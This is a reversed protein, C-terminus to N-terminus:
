LAELVGAALLGQLVGHMRPKEIDQFAREIEHRAAFDRDLLWEAIRSQTEDLDLKQDGRKVQFGSGRRVLKVGLNRVRFLDMSERLPLNYSAYIEFTKQRVYDAMAQAQNPRKMIETLKAAAEQLLTEYSKKDEFHPLYQRFLVEQPLERMLLNMYDQLVFHCAGFSVHLCDESSATAAHVFGHPIYLLDGPKATVELLVKGMREKVQDPTLSESDFGPIAAVSPIRNEYVRWTKEGSIQLAFVNQTDFHENYGQIGKHSAFISTNVPASVNAGVALSTARVGPSLTDAFALALTAGQKLAQQVSRPDPRQCPRGERDVSAYCFKQPPILKGNLALDMSAESWLNAVQLMENLQEWSFVAEAKAADGKIFLPKRTYTKALFEEPTESALLARFSLGTTM